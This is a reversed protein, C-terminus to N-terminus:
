SLSEKSQVEMRLQVAKKLCDLLDVGEFRASWVGLHEAGRGSCKLWDGHVDIVINPGGFEPNDNHIEIGEMEEMRLRNVLRVIQISKEAEESWGVSVPVSGDFDKKEGMQGYCLSPLYLYHENAQDSLRCEVMEISILGDKGVVDGMVEDLM